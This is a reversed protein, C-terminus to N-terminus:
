YVVSVKTVLTELLEAIKNGVNEVANEMVLKLTQRCHDAAADNKFEELSNLLRDLGLVKVFPEIGNHIYDINNIAVCWQFM